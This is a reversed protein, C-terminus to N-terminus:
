VEESPGLSCGVLPGRGVGRGFGLGSGFVVPPDLSGADRVKLGSSKVNNSIGVFERGAGPCVTVGPGLGVSVRGRSSPGKTIGAGFTVVMLPVGVVVVLKTPTVLTGMVVTTLIGPPPLEVRVSKVSDVIGIVDKRGRTEASGTTVVIFPRVAVKRLTNDTDALGVTTDKVVEILPRGATTEEVNKRGTVAGTGCNVGKRVVVTPGVIMLPRGVNPGVTTVSTGNVLVVKNVSITDPVVIRRVVVNMRGADDVRGFGRIWVNFTDVTISPFVVVTLKGTEREAEEVVLTMVVLMSPVRLTNVVVKKTGCPTGIRLRGETIRSVVVM